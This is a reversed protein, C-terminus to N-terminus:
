CFIIQAYFFLIKGGWFFSLQRHAAKRKHMKNRRGRAAMSVGDGGATCYYWVPSLLRKRHFSQSFNKAKYEAANAVIKEKQKVGTYYILPEARQAAIKGPMRRVVSTIPKRLYEKIM